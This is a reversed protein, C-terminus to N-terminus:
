EGPKTETPEADTQKVPEKELRYGKGWVTVIARGLDTKAADLKARIKCIYVDLIKVEPEESEHHYLENMFAQTAVYSHVNEALMVMMETEKGTLHIHVGNISVTHLSLNIVLGDISRVINETRGRFVRRDAALISADLEQPNEPSRLLYDGGQNLFEAARESWEEPIYLNESLGVVPTTVMQRRLVRPSYLGDSEEDDVDIVLARFYGSKAHEALDKYPVHEVPFRTTLSEKNTAVRRAFQGGRFAQALQKDVDM